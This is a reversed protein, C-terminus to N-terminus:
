AKIHNEDFQDSNETDNKNTGEEEGKIDSESSEDTCKKGHRGKRFIHYDTTSAERKEEEILEKEVTVWNAKSKEDAEPLKKCIYCYHYSPPARSGEQEDDEETPKQVV